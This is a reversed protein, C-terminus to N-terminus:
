QAFSCDAFESSYNQHEFQHATIILFEDSLFRQCFFRIFQWPHANYVLCYNEKIVNGQSKQNCKSQSKGGPPKIVTLQFSTLPLQANIDGPAM